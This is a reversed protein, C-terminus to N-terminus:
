PRRGGFGGTIALPGYNSATGLATTGTPTGQITLSGATQTGGTGYFAGNMGSATVSGPAGGYVSTFATTGSYTNGSITGTTSLGYNTYTGSTTQIGTVTGSVTGAGFNANLTSNGALGRINAASYSNSASDVTTVIGYSADTLAAGSGAAKSVMLNTTGASNKYNTVSSAAVSPVATLTGTNIGGTVLSATSGSTTLVASQGNQAQVSAITAATGPIYLLASKGPVAAAPTSGGGGGGGGCAALLASFTGIFTVSGVRKASNSINRM